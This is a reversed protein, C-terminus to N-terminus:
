TLARDFFDKLDITMSETTGPARWDVHVSLVEGPDDRGRWRSINRAEVNVVWYEPLGERLYRDRKVQYDALFSGPSVVEVALALERVHFPYPPFQRGDLRVVFVDPQM